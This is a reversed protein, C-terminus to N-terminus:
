GRVREAFRGNDHLEVQWWVGSDVFTDADDRRALLAHGLSWPGNRCVLDLTESLAANLSSAENAIVAAQQVLKSHHMREEVRRELTENLSQLELEAKRASTID